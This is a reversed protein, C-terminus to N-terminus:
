YLWALSLWLGLLALFAVVGAHSFCVWRLAAAIGFRAPIAQLGAARDFEVDQCAYILDFGGIWLTLAALLVQAPWDTSSFLSGRVAM